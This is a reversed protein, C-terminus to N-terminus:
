KLILNKVNCQIEGIWADVRDLAYIQPQEDASITTEFGVLPM